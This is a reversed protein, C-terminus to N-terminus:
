VKYIIFNGGNEWKNLNTSSEHKYYLSTNKFIKKFKEHIDHHNFDDIFFYFNKLNKLHLYSLSRGNGNCGDLIVLDYDDDLENSNIDYFNNKQRTSLKSKKEKMLSKDYIKNEFLYNYTNDSCEILNRIRLDFFDFNKNNKYAYNIDNDYSTIFLKRELSLSKDILYQTSIGSGFELVKKIKFDNDIIENIKQFALRSLGWGDNKYKEINIINKYM